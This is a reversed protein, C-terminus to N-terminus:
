TREGAGDLALVLRVKITERSVTVKTALKRVLLRLTEPQKENLELRDLVSNIQDETLFIHRVKQGIDKKRAEAAEMRAQQAKIKEGATATDITGTEIADWLKNIRTSADKIIADISGLEDTQSDLVSLQVALIDKVIQARRSRNLFRNEIEEIAHRDAEEMPVRQHEGARGTRRDWCGCKYYYYKQGRAMTSTGQMLAGCQCYIHGSLLYARKARGSGNLQRKIQSQVIDWISKEVIAPVANEVTITNEGPAQHNNRKGSPPNNIAKGFQYIGIYKQNRFIELLSNKVFPRNRKTRWGRENLEAIITNYSAGEARRQFIHRVIPAENENIVYKGDIVDYGLAPIGGNHKAQLANEKMGKQVERALNRSYYAAMGVLFAEMLQGEPSDDISQAAYEFTVGANKLQGKYFYYDYEDRSNRDVKHFLVTDFKNVDRVMRQFAVRTAKTGTQAEDIYEGVVKYGRQECYDHCARLQATISEYRQNDCSYRAYIAVRKPEVLKLHRPKAMAM